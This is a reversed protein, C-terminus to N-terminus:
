RFIGVRGPRASQRASSIKKHCQQLNGFRALRGIRVLPSNRDADVQAGGMRQDSRHTVPHGFAQGIRRARNQQGAHHAIQVRLAALNPALGQLLLACVRAVRNCRDLAQHPPAQRVNSICGAQRIGQDIRRAHDLHARNGPLFARHFHARLNQRGQTEAGFVTKVLVNKAGHNGHRRIKVVRLALGGFVRRLQGAEM